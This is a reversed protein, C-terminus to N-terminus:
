RADFSVLPTGSFGTVVMAARVAKANPVEFRCRFSTFGSGGVFIFAEGAFLTRSDCIHDDGGQDVSCARYQLPTNTVNAILCNIQGNPGAFYAPTHLTAARAVPAAGVLLIGALGAIRRITRTM